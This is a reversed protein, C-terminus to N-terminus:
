PSYHGFIHLLNEEISNEIKVSSHAGKTTTDPKELEIEGNLALGLKEEELFEVETELLSEGAFIM